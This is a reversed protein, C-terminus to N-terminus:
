RPRNEPADCNEPADNASGKQRLADLAVRLRLPLEETLVPAFAKRLAEDVTGALYPRQPRMHSTQPM